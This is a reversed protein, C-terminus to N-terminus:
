KDPWDPWDPWASAKRQDLKIGARFRPRYDVRVICVAETRLTSNASLNMVSGESTEGAAPHYLHSRHYGIVSFDRTTHTRQPYTRFGAILQLLKICASPSRAM